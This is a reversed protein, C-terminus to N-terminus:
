LAVPFSISSEPLYGVLEFNSIPFDLNCDELRPVSQMRLSPLMQPTRKLQEDVGILQDVYIHADVMTIALEGPALNLWKAFLELLLGYSAINFPLGVPVDTSRMTCHLNVRDGIVNVVFTYHCPPLNSQLDTRPDWAVVVGRRSSPDKKLLELVGKVQDHNQIQDKGVGCVLIDAFGRWRVGYASPIEDNKDKWQDWIKTILSLKSINKEGSLFWLLEAVVAKWAVRKTTLIPFGKSMDHRFTQAFLSRTEIPTTRLGRPASVKVIGNEKVNRLIDLYAKM